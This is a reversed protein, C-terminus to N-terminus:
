IACRENRWGDCRRLGAGAHTSRMTKRIMTAIPVTTPAYGALPQGPAGDVTPRPLLGRAVNAHGSCSLASAPCCSCSAARTGARVSPSHRAGITWLSGGAIPITFKGDAALEAFEGLVDYRLTPSANADDQPDVSSRVGLAAAGAFDVVTFVRRPDGGVLRVLAPLAGQVASSVNVPATDLAM